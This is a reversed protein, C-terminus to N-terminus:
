GAAAPDAAKSMQQVRAYIAPDRKGRPISALLRKVDVYADSGYARFKECVLCRGWGDYELIPADCLCARWASEISSCDMHFLGPEGQWWRGRPGDWQHSVNVYDGKRSRGGCWVCRTLTWRRLAQLPRVQIKWHHVHWRWGYRITMSWKGDADQERIYHRCVEGSDHGGPERHWVTILGPWYWGRGAVTWFAGSAAWRSKGAKSDWARDRRPWPRRIEFAVVLPDHM